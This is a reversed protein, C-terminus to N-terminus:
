TSSRRACPRPRSRGQTRCVGSNKDKREVIAVRRQAERRRHSGEPRWARLRDGAGRLRVCSRTHRGCAAKQVGPPARDKILVAARAAPGRTLDRCTQGPVLGLRRELGPPQAAGRPGFRAGRPRDAPRRRKQNIITTLPMDAHDDQDEVDKKPRAPEDNPAAKRVPCANEADGVQRAPRAQGAPQVERVWWQAALELSLRGLM